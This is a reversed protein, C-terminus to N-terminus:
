FVSCGLARGKVSFALYYSGNEPGNDRYMYGGMIATIM